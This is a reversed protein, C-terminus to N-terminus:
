FETLEGGRCIDYLQSDSYIEKTGERFIDRKWDMQGDIIRVEEGCKPCTHWYGGDSITMKAGCSCTPSKIFKIIKGGVFVTAVTVGAYILIEKKHEKIWKFVKNKEKM